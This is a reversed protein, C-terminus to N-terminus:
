QVEDMQWERPLKLFTGEDSLETAFAEKTGIYNVDEMRRAEAKVCTQFVDMGEEFNAVDFIEYTVVATIIINM